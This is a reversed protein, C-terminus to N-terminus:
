LFTLQVRLLFLCQMMSTLQRYFKDDFDFLVLFVAENPELNVISKSQECALSTTIVVNSAQMQSDFFRYNDHVYLRAYFKGYDRFNPVEHQNIDCKM